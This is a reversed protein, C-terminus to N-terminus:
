EGVQCYLVQGNEIIKFKYESNISLIFNMLNEVRTEISGTPPDIGKPSLDELSPLDDIMIIHDKVPHNKIQTLEDVLPIKGHGPHESILQQPDNWQYHADLWFTIREDIDKIMKELDVSSDGHFLQVRSDDKFRNVCEDYFSKSCEISLVKEFGSNIAIQVGDGHHTGTEVFVNTQREIRDTTLGM